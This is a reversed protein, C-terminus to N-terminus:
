GDEDQRSREARRIMRRQLAVAAGGSALGVGAAIVLAWVFGYRDGVARAVPLAFAVGVVVSLLVRANDAGRINPDRDKARRELVRGVLWIVGVFALATALLVLVSWAGLYPQSAIGVQGALAGCGALLLVTGWGGLGGGQEGSM